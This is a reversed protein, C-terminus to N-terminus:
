CLPEKSTVLSCPYRSLGQHRSSVQASRCLMVTMDSIHAFFRALKKFTLLSSCCTCCPRLSQTRKAVRRSRAEPRALNGTVRTTLETESVISLKVSWWYRYPTAVLPRFSFVYAGHKRQAMQSIGNQGIMNVIAHAEKSVPGSVSPVAPGTFHQRGSSSIVHVHGM